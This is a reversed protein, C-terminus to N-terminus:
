RPITLGLQVSAEKWSDKLSIYRQMYQLSSVKWGELSRFLQRQLFKLSEFLFGTSAVGFPQGSAGSSQSLLSYDVTDDNHHQM